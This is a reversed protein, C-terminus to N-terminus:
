WFPKAQGKAQTQVLVRTGTSVLFARFNFLSFLQIFIYIFSWNTKNAKAFFLQLDIYYYIIINLQCKFFIFISAYNWAFYHM